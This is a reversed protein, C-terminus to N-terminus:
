QADLKNPKDFEEDSYIESGDSLKVIAELGTVKVEALGSKNGNSFSLAYQVSGDIVTFISTDAKVYAVGKEGNHRISWMMDSVSKDGADITVTAIIAGAYDNDTAVISENTKALEAIEAETLIEEVYIVVSEDPTVAQAALELMGADGGDRGEYGYFVNVAAQGGASLAVTKSGNEDLAVQQVDFAADLQRSQDLDAFSKQLSHFTKLLVPVLRPHVKQQEATGTPAFRFEDLIQGFLQVFRKADFVRPIQQVAVDAPGFLPDNGSKGLRLCITLDEKDILAIRQEAAPFSRAFAPFDTLDISKERFHLPEPANEDDSGVQDLSKVLRSQAPETETQMEIIQGTFSLFNEIPSVEFREIHRFQRFRFLLQQM